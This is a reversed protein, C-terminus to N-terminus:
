NQVKKKRTSITQMDLFDLILCFMTGQSWSYFFWFSIHLWDIYSFASCCGILIWAPCCGILHWSLMAATVDCVSYTPFCSDDEPVESNVVSAAVESSAQWLHLRFTLFKYGSVVVWWGPLYWICQHWGHFGLGICVQKLKRILCIAVLFIVKLRFSSLSSNDM